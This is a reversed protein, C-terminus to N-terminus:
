HSGIGRMARQQMFNELKAVAELLNWACAEARASSMYVCGALLMGLAATLLMESVWSALSTALALQQNSGSGSKTESTMGTEITVGAFMM